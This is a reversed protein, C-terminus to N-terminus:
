VIRPLIPMDFVLLSEFLLNVRWRSPFARGAGARARIVRLAGLGLAEPVQRKSTRNQRMRSRSWSCSSFLLLSQEARLTHCKMSRMHKWHQNFCVLSPLRSTLLFGSVCARWPSPAFSRWQGMARTEHEVCAKHKTRGFGNQLCPTSHGTNLSVQMLTQEEKKISDMIPRIVPNLKLPLKNLFILTSAVSAQVRLLLVSRCYFYCTLEVWAHLQLDNFIDNINFRVAILKINRSSM